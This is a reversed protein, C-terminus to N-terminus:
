SFRARWQGRDQVMGVGEWGIEKLNRKINDEMCTWIERIVEKEELKGTV